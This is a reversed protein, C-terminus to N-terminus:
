RMGLEALKRTLEDNKDNLLIVHLTLEEIRELLTKTMYGIDVGNTKIDQESPVGPLRGNNDIYARLEALPMLNHGPALVYDAWVDQQVILESTTLTGDVKFSGDAGFSAVDFWGLGNYHTFSLKGLGPEGGFVFKLSGPDNPDEPDYGVLSGGITFGFQWSTATTSSLFANYPGEKWNTFLFGGGLNITEATVSLPFTALCLALGAITTRVKTM